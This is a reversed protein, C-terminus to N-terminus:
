QNTGIRRFQVAWCNHASNGDTMTFYYKRGSGVTLITQSSNHRAYKNGQKIFWEPQSGTYDTWQYLKGSNDGTDYFTHVFLVEYNYNDNPLYSSLDITYTGAATATSLTETKSVWQGDIVKKGSDSLNSLDTNAKGQLSSAWASWDMMSQNIQGNAVVVFYRLAVANPQVTTSNGYIPNSYSANFDLNDGAKSSGSSTAANSTSGVGINVSLAGDNETSNLISARLRSFGTINPLGANYSKGEESTTLAQQIVSGNKILPVRFKNNATDIAFKACQGYTSLDQEYETYTCTNLLSTSLYNNWLDTFQEKTYEAGDCPLSGDPVYNSTANVPIITGIPLGGSKFETEEGQSNIFYLKDDRMYFGTSQVNAVQTAGENQILGIQTAGEDILSTKSTTEQNTISTIANNKATTIDSISTNKLDTIDTLAGTKATDINSLANNGSAVVESTKNTAITAQETALAVQTAGATNVNIIANNRANEINSVATNGSEVVETAKAASIDAQKKSENAYYKSSYDINDVIRDSIAWEKSKNSYYMASDPTVNANVVTGASTVTIKNVM